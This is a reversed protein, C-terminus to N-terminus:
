IEEKKLKLLPALIEAMDLMKSFLLPMNAKYYAIMVVTFYTIEEDNINNKILIQTIKQAKDIFMNVKEEKSM